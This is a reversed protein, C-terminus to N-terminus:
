RRFARGDWELSTEALDLVKAAAEPVIAAPRPRRRRAPGIYHADYHRLTLLRVMAQSILLRISRHKGFCQWAARM